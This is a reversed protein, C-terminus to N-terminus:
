RSSLEKQFTTTALTTTAIFYRVQESLGDSDIDSYFSISTTTGSILPYAGQESNGASRLETILVQFAQEFDQRSRLKQNVLNELDGANKRLSSLVFVMGVALGMTIVVEIFSFGQRGNM